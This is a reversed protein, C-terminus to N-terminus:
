RSLLVSDLTKLLYLSFNLTYLSFPCSLAKAALWMSSCSSPVKLCMQVRAPLSWCSTSKCSSVFSSITRGPLYINIIIQNCSVFAQSDIAKLNIANHYQVCGGVLYYNSVLDLPDVCNLSGFARPQLMGLAALASSRAQPDRFLTSGM